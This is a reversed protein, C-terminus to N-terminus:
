LGAPLKPSKDEGRVDHVLLQHFILRMGRVIQRSQLLGLLKSVCLLVRSNKDLSCLEDEPIASSPVEQLFPSTTGPERICAIRLFDQSCPGTSCAHRPCNM